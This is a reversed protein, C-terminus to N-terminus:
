RRRWVYLGRRDPGTLTGAMAFKEFTLRRKKSKDNVYDFCILPAATMMQIATWAPNPVHEFVETCVIADWKLSLATDSDFVVVFEHRQYRELLTDKIDATWVTQNLPWATEVFHTYPAAGAGFELVMKCYRLHWAVKLMRLPHMERRKVYSLLRAYQWNADDFNDGHPKTARALQTFHYELWTYSAYDSIPLSAPRVRDWFPIFDDIWKLALGRRVLARRLHFPHQMLLYLLRLLRM